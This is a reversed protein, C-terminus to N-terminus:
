SRVSNEFRNGFMTLESFLSKETRREKEITLLNVM